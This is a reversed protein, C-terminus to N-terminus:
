TDTHELHEIGATRELAEAIRQLLKIIESIQRDRLEESM